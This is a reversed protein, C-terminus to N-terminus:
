ERGESGGKVGARRRYRNRKSKKKSLLSAAYDLPSGESIRSARIDAGASLLLDVVPTDSKGFRCGAVCAQSGKSACGEPLTDHHLIHRAASTSQSRSIIHQLATCGDLQIADVNAGRQLLEFVYDVRHLKAAHLLPTEGWVNTAEINLGAELFLGVTAASGGVSPCHLLTDGRNNWITPIAGRELLLQVTSPNGLRSAMALTTEGSRTSAFIDTGADVLFKAWTEESKPGIAENLPKRGFYKKGIAEHLPTHGFWNVPSMNVGHQILLQAMDIDEEWVCRHLATPHYDDKPDSMNVSTGVEIFHRVATLNGAKVARLFYPRGSRSVLDKACRYMYPALLRNLARTTRVLTNIDDLDLYDAFM